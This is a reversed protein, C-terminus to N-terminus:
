LSKLTEPEYYVRELYLGHPPVTVGGLTRDRSALVAPIDLTLTGIERSILTGVMIRVMNYLFGNGTVTFDLFPGNRAVTFAYVTRVPDKTDAGSAMFATFDHTGVYAQAEAHMREASLPRPYFYARHEELPDRIRANLVRYRYTKGLCSFRAHFGDPAPKAERVAVAGPLYANLALPLRDLPFPKPLDAHCVFERAHVGADTRSCGVVPVAEGFIRFLAQQLVGQVSVANEQVQWGHFGTGDFALTLVARNM